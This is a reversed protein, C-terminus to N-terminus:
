RGREYAALWTEFEPIPLPKSFIYGQILDCDVTKLFRLQEPTEIGEAVTTVGLKRMLATIAAIIEAAKQEELDKSLSRDLKIVDVDFEKLLGLSSFGAGFDDLSCRFGARHMEQIQAKVMELIEDDFFVAETLELELIDRPVQYRQALDIYAQLFGPQQFHQRSLNVSIPFLPRGEDAWRRILRCVEQFIYLDLQCINRNPM